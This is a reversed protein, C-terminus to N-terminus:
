GIIEYTKTSIWFHNEDARHMCKKTGDDNYEFTEYYRGGDSTRYVLEGYKNCVISDWLSEEDTKKYEVWKRVEFGDYADNKRNSYSYKTESFLEGDVYEKKNIKRHYASYVYEFEWVGLIEDKETYSIWKIEDNRNNWEIITYGYLTDDSDYYSEKVDRGLEDVEVITYGAEALPNGDADTDIVKVKKNEFGVFDNLPVYSWARTDAETKGACAVLGICMVACVLLSIIKKM